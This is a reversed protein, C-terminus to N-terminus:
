PNIFLFSYFLKLYDQLITVKADFFFILKLKNKINTEHVEEDTNKTTNTKM